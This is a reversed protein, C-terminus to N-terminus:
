AFRVHPTISVLTACSSTCEDLKKVAERDFVQIPRLADSESMLRKHWGRLTSVLASIPDTFGERSFESVFFFRRGPKQRGSKFSARCTQKDRERLIEKLM